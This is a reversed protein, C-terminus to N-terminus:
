LREAPRRVSRREGPAASAAESVGDPEGVPADYGDPEVSYSLGWRPDPSFLGDGGRSRVVPDDVPWHSGKPITVRVGNPLTVMARTTAYVVDIM